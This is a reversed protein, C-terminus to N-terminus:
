AEVDDTRSRLNLGRWVCRMHVAPLGNLNLRRVKRSGGEGGREKVKM